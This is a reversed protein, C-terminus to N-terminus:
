KKILVVKKEDSSEIEAFRRPRSKADRGQGTEDEIELVFMELESKLEEALSGLKNATSTVEEMSATQQETSSSIGEVASSTEELGALTGQIDNTINGILEVTRDIRSLIETIKTSSTEVSVKSEEALKRVEDAVVAFGRGFEGARGAEFSANLALLNTQDSIGVIIEMVKDIDNGSNKVEHSLTQIENAMASIDTLAKVQTQVTVAVEQTSSSIEESAANVEASSAALETAINAVNISAIQTSSIVKVLNEQMVGFSNKLLDTESKVKKSTKIEQTLDGKAIFDATTVLGGIAKTISRITPFAIAIGAVIAVVIMTITIILSSSMAASASAKNADVKAEIDIDLLILDNTLEDLLAGIELHKVEISDKLAFIGVIPATVNGAFQAHDADMEIVADYIVSDNVPDYFTTLNTVSVDFGAEAAAFESKTLDDPNSIYEYVYFMQMALYYGMETANLKMTEDTILGLLVDIDGDLEAHLALLNIMQAWIADQEALVGTGPDIIYGVIQNHDDELEDLRDAFAPLLARVETYYDDFQQVSENIETKTGTTEGDLYMFMDRIVYDVELKMQQMLEMAKSDVNALETYYGNMTNLQVISVIGLVSTIAILVTFGILLKDRIKM